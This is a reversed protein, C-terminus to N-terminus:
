VKARPNAHLYKQTAKLQGWEGTGGENSVMKGVM